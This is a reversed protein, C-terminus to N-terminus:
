PVSGTIGTIGLGRLFSSSGMPPKIGFPCINPPRVLMYHHGATAALFIRWPATSEFQEPPLVLEASEGREIENKLDEFLILPHAERMMM